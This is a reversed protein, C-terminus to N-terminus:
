IHGRQQLTVPLRQWHNSSCVRNSLRPSRGQPEAWQRTGEPDITM